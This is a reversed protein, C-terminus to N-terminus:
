ESPRLETARVHPAQDPSPDFDANQELLEAAGVVNSHVSTRSLGSAYEGHRVLYNTLRIPSMPRNGTVDQPVVYSAPETWQAAASSTTSATAAATSPAAVPSNNLSRLGFVAVTAVTAAIGVGVLPRVYASLARRAPRAPAAALVSSGTLANEIRRRLVHPDRQLLEGRLACGITMYRVARQRSQTERELRRVLFAGEEDSLEDDIFASIQDRVQETM